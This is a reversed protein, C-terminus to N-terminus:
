FSDVFRARLKEGAASFQDDSQLRRVVFAGELVLVLILGVLPSSFPLTSFAPSVNQRASSNPKM